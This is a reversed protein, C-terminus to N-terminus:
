EGICKFSWDLEWDYINHSGGTDFGIGMDGLEVLKVYILDLQGPKNHHFTVKVWKDPSVREKGNFKQLIRKPIPHPYKKIKVKIGTKRIEEVFELTKKFAQNPTM